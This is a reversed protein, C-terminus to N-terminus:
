PSPPGRFRGGGILVGAITIAMAVMFLIHDRRGKIPHLGTGHLGVM